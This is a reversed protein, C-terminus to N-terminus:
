PRPRQRTRQRDPVDLERGRGFREQGGVACAARAGRRRAQAAPSRWAGCQEPPAWFLVGIIDRGGAPWCACAGLMGGPHTDPRGAREFGALTGPKLQRTIMRAVHEEVTAEERRRRPPWGGPARASLLV